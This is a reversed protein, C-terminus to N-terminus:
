ADGELSSTSDGRSFRNKLPTFLDREADMMAAVAHTTSTTKREPIKAAQASDQDPKEDGRLNRM